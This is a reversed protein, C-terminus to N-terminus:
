RLWVPFHHADLERSAHVPSRRPLGLWPRSVCPEQESVMMWRVELVPNWPSFPRTQPLACPRRAHRHRQQAGRGGRRLEEAPPLVGAGGPPHSVRHPLHHLLSPAVTPSVPTHSVTPPVTLSTTARGAPSLAPSAQTPNPYPNLYTLPATERCSTAVWRQPVRSPTHDRGGAWASGRALPFGPM